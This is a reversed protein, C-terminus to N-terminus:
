AACGQMGSGLRVEEFTWGDAALTDGAYETQLDQLTGDALEVVYSGVAFKWLCKSRPSVCCPACMQYLQAVHSGVAFEWLCKSRCSLVLVQRRLEAACPRVWRLGRLSRM